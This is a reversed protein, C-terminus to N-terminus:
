NTGESESFETQQAVAVSLERAFLVLSLRDARRKYRGMARENVMAAGATCGHCMKFGSPAIDGCGGSCKTMGM